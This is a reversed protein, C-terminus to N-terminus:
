HCDRICLARVSYDALEPHEGRGIM